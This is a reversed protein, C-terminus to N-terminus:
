KFEVDVRRGSDVGTSSENDGLTGIANEILRASVGRRVLAARVAEARREALEANYNANGSDNAYGILSATVGSLQILTSAIREIAVRGTESPLASDPDFFVPEATPEFEREPSPLPAVALPPAIVAAPELIVAAPEVAEPVYAPEPAPEHVAPAQPAQTPEPQTAELTYAPAPTPPAERKSASGFPIVLGINVVWESLQDSGPTPRDFDEMRHRIEFLSSTGHPSLKRTIGLGFDIVENQAVYETVGAIEPVDTRQIGIGALAHLSFSESVARRYILDLGAGRSRNKDDDVRNTVSDWVRIQTAFSPSVATGFALQGGVGTTGADERKEDDVQVGFVSPSFWSRQDFNSHEAFAPLTAFGAVATFTAIQKKLRM